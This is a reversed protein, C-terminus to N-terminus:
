LDIGNIFVPKNGLDVSEKLTKIYLHLGTDIHFFGKLGTIIPHKRECIFYMYGIDQM